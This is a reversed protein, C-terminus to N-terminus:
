DLLHFHAGPTIGLRSVTGAPLELVSRVPEGSHLITLDFPKAREYVRVVVGDDRIYLLDLSLPTNKMWIGVDRSEQWVLLMGSEAGLSERFMLGRARAEATEAVELSFLYRVGDDTEVFGRGYRFLDEAVADAWLGALGVVLVVSIVSAMMAWVRISSCSRMSSRTRM